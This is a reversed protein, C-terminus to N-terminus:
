THHIIFDSSQLGNIPVNITPAGDGHGLNVTADHDSHTAQLLSQLDTGGGVKTVYDPSATQANGVNFTNSSLAGFGATFVFSDHGSLDLSATQSASSHGVDAMAPAPPDVIVTGNHGDSSFDFSALSYHGNFALHASHAGDTVTLVGHSFSAAFGPANFNVDRLDIADHGTFGFITGSFDFSDRLILTGPHGFNNLFAVNNSDSRDLELTSGGEILLRGHGTVDGTIELLGHESRVTGENDIAALVRGHGSLVGRAEISVSAASVTGGDLDFRGEAITLAHILDLHGYHDVEVTAGSASITLSNAVEHGDVTVKYTGFADVLADNIATPGCPGAGTWQSGDSWCGSGHKWEAIHKSVDIELVQPASAGGEEVNVATLTLSILEAAHGTHLTLGALESPTLLISGNVIHLPDGHSNTLTVDSPLGSILVDVREGGDPDFATINLAVASNLGVVVFDVNKQHGASESAFLIPDVDIVKSTPTSDAVVTQGAASYTAEVRILRGEDGETLKYFSKTAGVIDKWTNTSPDFYQWQYTVNSTQAHGDLLAEATLTKGEQAIGAITVSLSLPTPPSASPPNFEISIPSILTNNGPFEFHDPGFHLIPSNNPSSQPQITFPPPQPILFHPDDGSGHDGHTSHPTGIPNSDYLHHVRFTGQLISAVSQAEGSTKRLHSIEVDDGRPTAITTIDPDTITDLLSVNDKHSILVFSGITFGDEERGVSYEATGDRLGVRSHVATGRIGMTAVPTDVKMDGTKAVKGALFGFTGQILSIFAKNASGNPEFVFENLVMRADASLSFATGDTFGIGVASNGGTQVVDGKFVLDGIKASVATGDAHTITVSGTATEIKGVPPQHPTPAPGAQAYSPLPAAGALLQVVKGDLIAGEPSRLSATEPGSFYGAVVVAQGHDGHIILDSGSRNFEGSFLLHADPITIPSHGDGDSAVIAKQLAGFDFSADHFFHALSLAM